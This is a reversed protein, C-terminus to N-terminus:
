LVSIATGDSVSGEIIVEEGEGLGELVIVDTGNDDGLTVNRRTAVGDIAVYVVDEGAFTATADAPIMLVNDVEETVLYISVYMGERIDSMDETFSLEVDVTRNSANVVPSIYSIEVPYKREPYASTVVYGSLGNRISSLYREPILTSVKVEKEGIITAISSSTSVEMGVTTDVSLVEGSLKARVPSAEYSSGPRSADVYAIIEGEEVKDGRKVLIQTVTGATDPYTPVNDDPSFVEGQFRTEAIFRGRRVQSVTVNVTGDDEATVLEEAEGPTFLKVLIAVALIVCLAVMIMTTIRDFKNKSEM